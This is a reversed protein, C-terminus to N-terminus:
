ISINLEGSDVETVGLVSWAAHRAEEFEAWSKVTGKLIVKSGQTTVRISRADLAASRQFELLIKNSVQEPKITTPPKIWEFGVPFKSLNLRLSGM